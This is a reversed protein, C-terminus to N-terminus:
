YETKEKLMFDDYEELHNNTFSIGFKTKAEEELDNIERRLHKYENKNEFFNGIKM